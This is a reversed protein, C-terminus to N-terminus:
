EDGEPDDPIESLKRGEPRAVEHLIEYIRGLRYKKESLFDSGSYNRDAVVVEKIAAIMEKNIRNIRAEEMLLAAELFGDEPNDSCIKITTKTKKEHLTIGCSNCFAVGDKISFNIGKLDSM